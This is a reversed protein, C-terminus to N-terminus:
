VPNRKGLIYFSDPVIKSDQLFAERAQASKSSLNQPNVASLHERLAENVRLECLDVEEQTWLVSPLNKFPQFPTKAQCDLWGEPIGTDSADATM